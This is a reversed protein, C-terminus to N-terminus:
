RHVLDHVLARVLTLRHPPRRCTGVQHELGASPNEVAVEILEDAIAIGIEPLRCFLFKGGNQSPSWHMGYRVVPQNQRIEPAASPRLRCHPWVRGNTTTTTRQPNAEALTIKAKASCQACYLRRAKPQSVSRMPGRRCWSPLRSDPKSLLMQRTAGKPTVLATM